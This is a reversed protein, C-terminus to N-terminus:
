LHTSLYGKGELHLIGIGTTGFAIVGIHYWTAYLGASYGNVSGESSYGTTNSHSNSQNNGYGAMLGIHWRQQDGSSWQAVDGGLQVVYRNSQTSIQGSSDKWDNHGGVQRLWMSTVKQEGTLADTYQPEGLRDHLRTIFLTSAAALNATYSASEPRVIPAAPELPPPANLSTLFWDTSKKVLSYDYAGAVIRGSQTFTGDSVGSVEVVRIGEVTQAGGGGINNVKVFTNGHTDGNVVIKDTVSTDNGLVTNLVVTGGQGNWNNVTLTHGLSTPMSPSTVINITGALNVDNVLSDATMNWTSAADINVDAPDVWGTLTAGNRLSLVTNNQGIIHSILQAGGDSGDLLLEGGDIRTDGTWGTHGRLTLTGDGTKTLSGASSGDTINGTFTSSDATTANNVTLVAGDLRVEGGTGGMRNVRQNNGNLDLVGGNITLANNSALSDAVDTRLVGAGLTTSGTYTNVASLVLLGNGAKVLSKGDWGTTFGGAPVTQDSLVTDVNFATGANVTFNGTGFPQGGESWAMRFGLNYDRGDTSLHGDHLLYDLGSPTLPTNTFDGTIGNTTHILTYLNSAVESSKVPVPADVFGNLTLQGNLSATDATIDPSGEITVRLTSDPAQTFAGGVTLTSDALGIDTTANAGTTYHGTTTFAGAQEFRLTGGTVDVSGVTNGIGSLTQTLTGAKTLGGVGSFSGAYNANDILSGNGAINNSGVSFPNDTTTANVSATSDGELSGVQTTLSDVALTGGTDLKVRSGDADVSGRLTVMSGSGTAWLGTGGTSGGQVTVRGSNNALVGWTNTGATQSINLTQNVLNIQSGTGNSNLLASGDGSVTIVPLVNSTGGDFTKGADDLAEFGHASAGSTTISGGNFNVQSGAGSQVAGTANDGSTTVDASATIVGLNTAFLGYSGVGETLITALGTITVRSGTAKVNVGYASQGTTTVSTNFLNIIGGTDVAIGIARPGSSHITVNGTSSIM